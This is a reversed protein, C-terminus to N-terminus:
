KRNTLATEAQASDEPVAPKPILGQRQSELIDFQRLAERVVSKAGPSTIKSGPLVLGAQDRKTLYVAFLRRYEDVLPLFDTAVRQRAADLEGLKARLAQRQREFDWERIVTTLPVQAASPLDKQQRRLQVPARLMAELKAWSVEASWLGSADRGTFLEVQLAWWKEVDLQRQFHPKFGRLFALQWNYFKPLEELMSHLCARGDPFRLLESVFLQANSRYVGGAVGILQEDRPWSLQELTLPAYERLDRRATALPDSRRSNVERPTIMLGNVVLQPPPLIVELEHAALVNRALGEALWVPIEASRERAKRNAEELLLAQVVGRVFRARELPNPVDLRYRWGDKFRESVLTLEDDVTQAPRLTLFIKGRWQGGPGLENVLIQKIRECSVTVLAPELKVLQAHNSFEAVPSNQRASNVFFQGSVSRASLLDNPSWRVAATGALACCLALARAFVQCAKM